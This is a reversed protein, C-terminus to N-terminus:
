CPSLAASFNWVGGTSAKRWRALVDSLTSCLLLNWRRVEAIAYHRAADADSARGAVEAINLPISFPAVAHRQRATATMVVDVDVPSQLDPPCVGPVPPPRDPTSRASGAIAM